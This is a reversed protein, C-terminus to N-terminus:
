ERIFFLLRFSNKFGLNGQIQPSTPEVCLTREYFPQCTRLEWHAYKERTISCIYKDCIQCYNNHQLEAAAPHKDHMAALFELIEAENTYYPDKNRENCFTHWRKVCSQYKSQTLLLLLLLLKISVLNCPVIPFYYFIFLKTLMNALLQTVNSDLGHPLTALRAPLFELILLVLYHAM